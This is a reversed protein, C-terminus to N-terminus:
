GPNAVGGGVASPAEVLLTEEVSTVVSTEGGGVAARPLVTRAATGATRGITKGPIGDSGGPGM